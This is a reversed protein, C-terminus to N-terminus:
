LFSCLLSKVDRLHSQANLTNFSLGLFSGHFIFCTHAHLKRNTVDVTDMSAVSTETPLKSYAVRYAVNPPDPIPLHREKGSATM